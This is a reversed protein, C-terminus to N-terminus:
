AGDGTSDREVIVADFVVTNPAKSADGGSSSDGFSDTRVEELSAKLVPCGPIPSLTGLEMLIAQREGSAAQRDDIGGDEEVMVGAAM